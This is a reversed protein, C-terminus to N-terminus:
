PPSFWADVTGLGYLPISQIKPLGDLWLVPVALVIFKGTLDAFREAQTRTSFPKTIPIGQRNQVLWGKNSYVVLRTSQRLSLTTRDYQIGLLQSLKHAIKPLETRYLMEPPGYGQWRALQLEATSWALGDVNLKQAWWLMLKMSLLLWEKRFPANPIVKKLAQTSDSKSNANLDAHWDSQIEDLFLIKRGDMTKRTSMRIHVLANRTRYHRPQYSLPWNDLQLLIERYENSGPLSYKEWKALPHNRGWSSFRQRMDYEAFEIAHDLSQFGDAPQNILKGHQDAVSWWAPQETLLDQYKSRIISWGLSKHWYRTLHLAGYGKGILRRRRYENEPIRQCVEQWGGKVIYGFSAECAFKPMVHTLDIMQMVDKQTPKTDEPMRELRTLIGSMELEESKLGKQTLAKISAVWQDVNARRLGLGRILDPMTSRLPPHDAETCYHNDPIRPFREWASECESFIHEYWRKCTEYEPANRSRYLTLWQAVSQGKFKFLDFGAERIVVDILPAYDWCSAVKPLCLRLARQREDYRSIALGLESGDSLVLYQPLKTTM